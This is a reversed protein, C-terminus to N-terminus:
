TEPERMERVRMADVRIADEEDRLERLRIQLQEFLWSQAEGFTPAFHFATGERKVIVHTSDGWSRVLVRGDELDRVQLREIRRTVLSARYVVTYERDRTTITM